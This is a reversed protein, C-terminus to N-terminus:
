RGCDLSIPVRRRLHSHRDVDETWLIAAEMEGLDFQRRELFHLVEGVGHLDVEELPARNADRADIDHVQVLFTM